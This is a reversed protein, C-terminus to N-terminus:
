DNKRRINFIIKNILKLLRKRIINLFKGTSLVFTCKLIFDHFLILSDKSIKFCLKNRVIENDDKVLKDWKLIENDIIFKKANDRANKGMEILKKENKLLFCIKEAIAKNTKELFGNKKNTITSSLGDGRERSIVPIGYTEFEIASICFTEDRMYKSPNVIGIKSKEMYKKIFEASQTGMFHINDKYKLKKLKKRLIKDYYKDAIGLKGLEINNNWISAGGFIYLQIDRCEKEVYKWIDLLNHLGKQPMISGIYIVNNNSYDSIKSDNYFKKTIVNNIYTCKNFCISDRMNDYQKKSVCILKKINKIKAVICQGKYNLTNHAWCYININTDLILKKVRSVMNANIVIIDVNLTECCQIIEKENELFVIPIKNDFQEINIDTLIFAECNHCLLNIYRVTLLFMYQTGGIGPNGNEININNLRKSIKKLSLYFAIKKM